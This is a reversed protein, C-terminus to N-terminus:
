MVLDGNEWIRLSIYQRGCSLPVHEAGRTQVKGETSEETEQRLREHGAAEQEKIVLDPCERCDQGNEECQEQEHETVDEMDKGYWRCFGSM